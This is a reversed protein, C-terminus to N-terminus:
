EEKLIEFILRALIRRKQVQVGIWKLLNRVLIKIKKKLM